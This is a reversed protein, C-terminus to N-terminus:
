GAALGLWRVGAAVGWRGVYDRLVVGAAAPLRLHNGALGPFPSGWRENDMTRFDPIPIEEIPPEQLFLYGVPAHTAKAFAEVQKLTPLVGGSEWAALQPFKHELDARDFGARQYAWRLLRSNIAVRNM